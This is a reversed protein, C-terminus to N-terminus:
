ISQNKIDKQLTQDNFFLMPGNNMVQNADIFQQIYRFYGDKGFEKDWFSISDLVRALCVFVNKFIYEYNIDDHINVYPKLLKEIEENIFPNCIDELGDAMYLLDESAYDSYDSTDQTEIDLLRNIVIHIIKQVDLSSTQFAANLVVLYSEISLLEKEFLRTNKKLLGFRKQIQRLNKKAEVTTFSYEGFHTHIPVQNLFSLWDEEKFGQSHQPNQRLYIEYFYALSQKASEESLHHDLLKQYHLTTAPSLDGDLQNEIIRVFADRIVRRAM